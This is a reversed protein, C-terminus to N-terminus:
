VGAQHIEEQSRMFAGRLIGEKSAFQFLIDRLARREKSTLSSKRHASHLPYPYGYSRVDHCTYDLDQFLTTERELDGSIHERWWGADMDLRMPFSMEHFKFLYSVGLKPPVERDRLFSPREEGLSESPLRLFWHDKANYREAAWRGLLDGNPIGHSKCLGFVGTEQANAKCILYRKLIEPLYVIEGLLFLSLSTDLLLYKPNAKLCRVAMALEAMSRIIYAHTAIQSAKSFKAQDWTLVGAPLEGRGQASYVACYDSGDTLENLSISLLEHLYHRYGNQVADDFDRLNVFGTYMGGPIDRVSLKHQRKTCTEFIAGSSVVFHMFVDDQHIIPFEGSGDVGAIIFDQDLDRCHNFQTLRGCL